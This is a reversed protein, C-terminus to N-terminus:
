SYILCASSVSSHSGLSLLYRVQLRVPNSTSGSVSLRDQAAAPRFYNMLLVSIVSLSNNEPLLWKAEYCNLESETDALKLPEAAAPLEIEQEWFPLFLIGMRVYM